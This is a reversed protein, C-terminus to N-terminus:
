AASEKPSTVERNLLAAFISKVRALLTPGAHKEETPYYFKRGSFTSVQGMQGRVYASTRYDALRINQSRTYM